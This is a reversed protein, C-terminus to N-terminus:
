IQTLLRCATEYYNYDEEWGSENKSSLIWHLIPQHFELIFNGNPGFFLCSPYTEGSSAVFNSQWILEKLEYGDIVIKELEFSRDRIITGNELVTDQPSKDWHEIRLTCKQEQCDFDFEFSQAVVGEYLQQQCVYIRCKPDDVINKFTLQLHM